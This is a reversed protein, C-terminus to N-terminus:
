KATKAPLASILSATITITASDMTGKVTVARGAYGAAVNQPNLVYIRQTKSEM